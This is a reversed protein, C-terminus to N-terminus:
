YFFLSLIAFSFIIIIGLGLFFRKRMRKLSPMDPYCRGRFAKMLHTTWSFLLFILGMEMIALFIITGIGLDKRVAEVFIILTAPIVAMFGAWSIRDGLNAILTMIVSLSVGIVIVLSESTNNRNFLLSSLVGVCFIVVVKWEEKKLM